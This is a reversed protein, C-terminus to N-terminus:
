RTIGLGALAPLFPNFWSSPSLSSSIGITPRVPRKILASTEYPVECSLVDGLFAGAGPRPASSPLISCVKDM